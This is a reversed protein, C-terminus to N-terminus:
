PDLFLRFSSQLLWELMSCSISDYTHSTEMERNLVTENEHKSISVAQEDVKHTSM